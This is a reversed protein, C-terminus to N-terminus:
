WTIASRHLVDIKNRDIRAVVYCRRVDAGIKTEISLSYRKADFTLRDSVKQRNEAPVTVLAAALFDASRDANRTALIKAALGSQIDELTAELVQPAVRRVDIKGEGWFTVVDSWVPTGVISGDLRFIEGPEVGTLLQDFWQFRAGQVDKDARIPQLLTRSQLGHQQGLLNLKRILLAEQDSRQFLNPNFKAADDTLTCHVYAGGLDFETEAVGFQDLNVILVSPQGQVSTLRDAVVWLCSDVTLEHAQNNAHRHAILSETSTLTALEGCVAVLLAILLVTAM